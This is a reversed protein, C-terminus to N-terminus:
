FLSNCSFIQYINVCGLFPVDDRSGSWFRCMSIVLNGCASLSRLWCSSSRSWALYTPVPCGSVVLQSHFVFIWRSVKELIAPCGGSRAYIASASFSGPALIRTWIIRTRKAEKNMRRHPVLQLPVPALCTSVSFAEALRAEEAEPLPRTHRVVALRTMIHALSRVRRPGEFRDPRTLPSFPYPHSLGPRLGRFCSSPASTLCSRAHCYWVWPPREMTAVPSSDLTFAPSGRKKKGYHLLSVRVREVAALGPIIHLWFSLRESERESVRERKM